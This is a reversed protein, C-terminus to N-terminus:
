LLRASLQSFTQRAVGNKRHRGDHKMKHFANWVPFPISEPARHIKAFSEPLMASIQTLLM